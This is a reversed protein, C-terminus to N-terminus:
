LVGIPAPAVFGESLYGFLNDPVVFPSGYILPLSHLAVDRPDVSSCDASRGEVYQGAVTTTSGWVLEWAFQQLPSDFHGGSLWNGKPLSVSIGLQEPQLSVSIREDVERLPCPSQVERCAVNLASTVITPSTIQISITSHFQDIPCNYYRLTNPLLSFSTRTGWQKRSACLM